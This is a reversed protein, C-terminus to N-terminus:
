ATITASSNLGSASATQTVLGDTAADTNDFGFDLVTDQPSANEFYWTTVLSSNTQYSSQLAGNGDFSSVGKSYLSHTDKQTDLVAPDALEGADVIAYYMWENTSTMEFLVTLDHQNGADDDIAVVEVHAALATVDTITETLGDMTASSLASSPSASSDLNGDFHTAPTSPPNLMAIM